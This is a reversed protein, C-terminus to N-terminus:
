DPRWSRSTHFGRWLLRAARFISLGIFVILIGCILYFNFWIVLMGVSSLVEDRGIKMQESAYYHTAVGHRDTGGFLLSGPQVPKSHLLPMTSPKSRIHSRYGLSTYPSLLQFANITIDLYLATCGCSAICEAIALPDTQYM